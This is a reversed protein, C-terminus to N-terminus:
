AAVRMLAGHLDSACAPREDPKKSLCAMLIPELAEPM